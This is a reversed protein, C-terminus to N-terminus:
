GEVLTERSVGSVFSPKEAIWRACVLSIQLHGARIVCIRSDWCSYGSVSLGLDWPWDCSDARVGVGGPGVVVAGAGAM